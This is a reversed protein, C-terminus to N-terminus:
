EGRMLGNEDEIPYGAGGDFIGDLNAIILEQGQAKGDDYRLTGSGSGGFIIIGLKEAKKAWRSLNKAIDEVEKPNLGAFICEQKNIHKM